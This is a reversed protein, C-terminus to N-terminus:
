LPRVMYVADPGYTALKARVDPSADAVFGRRTWFPQADNVAVLAVAPWGDIRAQDILAEVDAQAHGAGRAEPRLALDHLYLIDADAPLVSLRSNLPPISGRRSPYAIRYGLVRDGDNLVRCGQPYLSLRDAFCDRDEFHDPFAVAAVACVSDLDGTTMPRWILKPM